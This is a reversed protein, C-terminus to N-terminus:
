IYNTNPMDNGYHHDYLIDIGHSINITENREQSMHPNHLTHLYHSNNNDIYHRISHFDKNVNDYKIRWM